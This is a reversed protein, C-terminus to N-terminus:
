QFGSPDLQAQYPNMKDSYIDDSPDLIGSFGDDKKEEEPHRRQM